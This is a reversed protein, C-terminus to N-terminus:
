KKPEPPGPQTHWLLDFVFTANPANTDNTLGASILNVGVVGVDPTDKRLRALLAACKRYSGRGSVRLSITAYREFSTMTGSEISDVVLGSSACLETLTALKRNLEGAPELNLQTQETALRTASLQDKQTKLKRELERSKSQEATLDVAQAKAQAQRDWAPGIQAFYAVTVLGLMIALAAADMRWHKTLTSPIM